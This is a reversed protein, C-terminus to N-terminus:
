IRFCKKLDKFKGLVMLTQADKLKDSASIAPDMKGNEKVGLVNIGYKKRVDLEGLTKGKWEDPIAVEFISYDGDIQIYGTVHDSTYRIATWDALQKEPYVVEDAGIKKLLKEQLDGSARSVVLKAGLEKLQSTIELSSQFDNGIAVVCVDFNKVGISKLLDLDTADGIQADTVVPLATNVRKESKDIALVDHGLDHLKLAVNYGFRGLGILLVSKM